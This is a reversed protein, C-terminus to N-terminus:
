IKQGAMSGAEWNGKVQRATEAVQTWIVYNRVTSTPFCCDNIESDKLLCLNLGVCKCHLM